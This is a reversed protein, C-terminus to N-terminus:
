LWVIYEKGFLLSCCFLLSTQRVLAQDQAVVNSGRQWPKWQALLAPTTAAILERSWCAEEVAAVRASVHVLITLCTLAVGSVFDAASSCLYVCALAIDKREGMRGVPVTKAIERAKVDEPMDVPALKDMGETGRIPGPAVGNVKIGKTGWELALTRTVSDVAAKAASAHVQSLFL